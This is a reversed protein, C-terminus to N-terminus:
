RQCCQLKMSGSVHYIITDDLRRRDVWCTHELNWTGQGTIHNGLNWKRASFAQHTIVFLFIRIGDQGLLSHKGSSWHESASQGLSIKTIGIVLHSHHLGWLISKTCCGIDYLLLVGIRRSPHSSTHTNYRSTYTQFVGHYHLNTFSINHRLTM